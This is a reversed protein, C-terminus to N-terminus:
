KNGPTTPSMIVDDDDMGDEDDASLLAHLSAKSQRSFEHVQLVRDRNRASEETLYRAMTEQFRRTEVGRAEDERKLIRGIHMDHSASLVGMCTDKDIVMSMAEDDLYDEALEERALRDILDQAVARVGSSFKEELDEITRFFLQQSELAENKLENLRNEFEDVLAEFKEVQRLEINMLEDCVQVSPFHM